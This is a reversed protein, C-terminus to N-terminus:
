PGSTSWGWLDGTEFGSEFMGTSWRLSFTESTTMTQNWDQIFVAQRLLLDDWWTGIPGSALIGASHSALIRHARGLAPDLYCVNGAIVGATCHYNDSGTALELGCNGICVHFGAGLPMPSNDNTAFTWRENLTNFYLRVEVGPISPGASTFVPAAGFNGNLASHDIISVSGSTNGATAIHQFSSNAPDAIVSSRGIWITFAAGVPIAAGDANRVYWQYPGGALSAFNLGIPHDNYVGASGPPNWDQTVFLNSGVYAAPPQPEIRSNAGLINAPTAVHTYVMSQSLVREPWGLALAALAAVRCFGRIEFYM